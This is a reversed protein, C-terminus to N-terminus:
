NMRTVDHTGGVKGGNEKIYFELNEFKNSILELKDRLLPDINKTKLMKVIKEHLFLKDQFQNFASKYGCYKCKITENVLDMEYRELKSLCGLCKPIGKIYKRYFTSILYTFGLLISLIVLALGQVLDPYSDTIKRFIPFQDRLLLVIVVFFLAFSLLLITTILGLRTPKKFFDLLNFHYIM